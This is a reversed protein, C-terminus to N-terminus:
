CNLFIKDWEPLKKVKNPMEKTTCFRRLKLCNRKVVKPKMEQSELTKDLIDKGMGTGSLAEGISQELLQITKSWQNLNKIRKHSSNHFAEWFTGKFHGWMIKLLNSLSVEFLQHRIFDVPISVKTYFTKFVQMSKWLICNWCM